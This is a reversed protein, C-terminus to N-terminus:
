SVCLRVIEEVAENFTGRWIMANGWAAHVFVSESGFNVIYSRPKLRKLYYAQVKTPVAPWKKMEFFTTVGCFSILVDPIGSTTRDNLKWIVAEKLEARSRLAKLLKATFQSETM